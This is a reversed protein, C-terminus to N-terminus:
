TDTLPIVHQALSRSSRRGLVQQRSCRRNLLFQGFTLPRTVPDVIRCGQEMAAQRNSNRVTLREWPADSPSTPEGLEDLKPVFGPPMAGGGAVIDGLDDNVEFFRQPEVLAVGDYRAESPGVKPATQRPLVVNGPHATGRVGEDPQLAIASRRKLVSGTYVETGRAPHFQDFGRQVKGFEQVRISM